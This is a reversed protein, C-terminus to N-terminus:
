WKEVVVNKVMPVAEGGGQSSNYVTIVNGGLFDKSDGGLQLTGIVSSM